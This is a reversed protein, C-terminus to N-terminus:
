YRWPNKQAKVWENFIESGEGGPFMPAGPQVWWPVGQRPLNEQLYQQLPLESEPQYSVPEQQKKLTSIRAYPSM